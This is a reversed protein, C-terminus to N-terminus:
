STITRSCSPVSRTGSAIASKSGVAPVMVTPHLREASAVGSPTGM